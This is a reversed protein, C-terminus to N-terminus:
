FQNAAYMTDRLREYESDDEDDCNINCDDTMHVIVQRANGYDWKEIAIVRHPNIAYIKKNTKIEM